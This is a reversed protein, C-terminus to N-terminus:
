SFLRKIKSKTFKSIQNHWPKMSIEIMEYFDKNSELMSKNFDKIRQLAAKEEYNLSGGKRAFFLNYPRPYQAQKRQIEYKQRLLRAKERYRQGEETADFDLLPNNKSYEEKAKIYENNLNRLDQDNEMAHQVALEREGQIAYEKQADHQYKRHIWGAFLNNLGQTNIQRTQARLQAVMNNLNTLSQVNQNAVEAARAKNMDAHKMAEESTRIQEQRDAMKAQMMTADIARQNEAHIAANLKASSTLPLVMRSQQAQQQAQNMVPLNGHVKRYTDYTSILPAKLSRILDETYKNNLYTTMLYRGLDMMEGSLAKGGLTKGKSDDKNNFDPNVRYSTQGTTAAATPAPEGTATSTTATATAPASKLRVRYAQKDNDFYYELDSSIHNNYLKAVEPTVYRGLTRQQQMHGLLGDVHGGTPNDGTNGVGKFYPYISDNLNFQRSQWRRQLNRIPDTAPGIRAGLPQITTRKLTNDGTTIDYDDEYQNFEQYNDKTLSKIYNLANSSKLLHKTRDYGQNNLVNSVLSTGGKAYLIGGQQNRKIVKVTQKKNNRQNGSNNKKTTKGTKRATGKQSNGSNGQNTNKNGEPKANNSTNKAETTGVKEAPKAKPKAETSKLKVEAGAKPSKPTTATIHKGFQNGIWQFKDTVKSFHDSLAERAVDSAKSKLTTKPPTGPPILKLPAPSATPAAAAEPVSPAKTFKQKIKNRTYLGKSYYDKAFGEYNEVGRRFFHENSWKSVPREASETTVLKDAVPDYTTKTKGPRTSPPTIVKEKSLSYTINDNGAEIKVKASADVGENVVKDLIKARKKNLTSVPREPNPHKIPIRNNVLRSRLAAYEDGSIKHTTTTAPSDALKQSVKVTHETTTAKKAGLRSRTQSIGGSILSLAQLTNQLDETSFKGSAIRKMSDVYMDGNTIMGAATYAMLAKSAPGVIGGVIKPVKLSKMAPILSAADLAYGGLANLATRWAPTGDMADAVAYMTTGAAGVGASAINAGPVFSGVVSALDMIAGTLRLKDADDFTFVEEGAKPKLLALDRPIGALGQTEANREANKRKLEAQKAANKQATQTAHQLLEDSRQRQSLVRERNQERIATTDIPAELQTEVKPGEKTKAVSSAVGQAMRKRFADGGQLKLIGGQQNRLININFRGLSEKIKQLQDVKIVKAKNNKDLVTVTDTEEDYTDIFVILDGIIDIQSKYNPDNSLQRLKNQYQEYNSSEYSKLENYVQKIYNDNVVAPSVPQAEETVTEEAKTEEPKTETETAVTQTTPPKPLGPITTTTTETTATPPKVLPKYVFKNLHLLVRKSAESLVGSELEQAATSLQTIYNDNLGLTQLQEPTYKSYHEISQQVVPLILKQRDTNTKKDDDSYLYAEVSRMGAPNTPTNPFNTRMYSKDWDFHTPAPEAPTTPETVTPTPAKEEVFPSTNKVFRDVLYALGKNVNKPTNTYREGKILRSIFKNTDAKGDSDKYKEDTSILSGAVDQSIIGAEVDSILRELNDKISTKLDEDMSLENLDRDANAALYERLQTSTYEKGSGAKLKKGKELKRILAM